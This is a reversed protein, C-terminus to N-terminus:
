ALVVHTAFAGYLLVTGPWSQWVFAAVKLAAEAADLSVLGFSHDIFHGTIYVWMVAGSALRLRRTLVSRPLPPPSKAAEDNAPEPASSSQAGATTM